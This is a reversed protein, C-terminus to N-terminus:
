EVSEQVPCYGVGFLVDYILEEKNGFYLVGQSDNGAYVLFDSRKNQKNAEETVNRYGNLLLYKVCANHVEDVLLERGKSFGHEKTMADMEPDEYERNDWGTYM